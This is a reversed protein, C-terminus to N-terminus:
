AEIRRPQASFPFRLSITTGEGQASHITISGKHAEIIRQCIPLGLGTGYIKTTFFPTFLKKITEDDMGVGHDQITVILEDQAAQVYCTLEGGEPMAEAGNKFLNWLVQRILDEDLPIAISDDGSFQFTILKFNEMTEAETAVEKLLQMPTILTQNPTWARAYDLMQNVTNEIRFVLIIIENLIAVQRPNEKVSKLLMQAAGGIGALPNRIEHAISAGMEGIAALRKSQAIEDHMAKLESIDRVIWVFLTDSGIQVSSARMHVPIFDGEIKRGAMECGSDFCKYHCTEPYKKITQLLRGSHEEQALLSISKGILEESEYGFMKAAALNLSEITGNQDVTIIGDPATDLIAHIRKENSRLAEEAALRRLRDRQLRHVMQNFGQWLVGIEDESPTKLPVTLLDEATNISNVHRTLKSIPKIVNRRLFLVFIGITIFGSIVNSFADYSITELGHIVGTRDTQMHVIFAPKHNIDRVMKFTHLTNGIPLFVPEERLKLFELDKDNLLDSTQPQIFQVTGHLHQNLAMIPSDILLRGMVLFGNPPATEESDTIPRSALIMPGEASMIFGTCSDSGKLLPSPLQLFSEQNKDAYKNSTGKWIVHGKSDLYCLLDLANNDFTAPVLNSEIYDEDHGQQQIFTYSDDWSAWDRCLRDLGLLEFSLIQMTHDIHEEIRTREQDLFTPLVFLRHVTYDMLGYISLTAFLMLLIKLRLSM